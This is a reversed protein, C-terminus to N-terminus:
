SKTRFPKNEVFTSIMSLLRDPQNMPALHGAANVILETLSGYNQVWGSYEDAQESNTTLWINRTSSLYGQKGSWEVQNIWKENQSPGDKWDFQGQYLLVRINELILPLKDAQSRMIDNYLATSVDDDTGWTANGVHLMERTQPMNFYLAMRYDMYDYSDFTRVDYANIGCALVINEMEVRYAHAADYDDRNCADVAKKMTETAEVFTKTDILGLHYAISPKTTIQVCPDTFGDGIAIGELPVIPNNSEGSTVKKNETIIKSSFAPIYHGGYSEGTIFLPVSALSPYQLYFQQLFYYLDTSVEDETTAYADPQGVYSYGTGIPQDVYLVNYNLNWKQQRDELELDSNLYYPGNEFLLGLSSSAGTM